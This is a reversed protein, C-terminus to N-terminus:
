PGVFYLLFHVMFYLWFVIFIFLSFSIPWEANYMLENDGVDFLIAHFLIFLVKSM